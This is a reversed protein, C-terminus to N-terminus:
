DSVCLEMLKLFVMSVHKVPFVVCVRSPVTSRTTSVEEPGCLSLLSRPVWGAPLRGMNTTDVYKQSVSLLLGVSGWFWLERFNM